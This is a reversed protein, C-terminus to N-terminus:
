RTDPARFPAGQADVDTTCDPRPAIAVFSTIGTATSRYQLSCQLTSPRDRFHKRMEYWTADASPKILYFFWQVSTNGDQEGVLFERGDETMGLVRLSETRARVLRHRGTRLDVVYQFTSDTGSGSVRPRCLRVVEDPVGDKITDGGSPAVPCGEWPELWGGRLLVRGVIYLSDGLPSYAGTWEMQRSKYVYNVYEMCDDTDTRRIWCETAYNAGVSVPAPIPDLERTGGAHVVTLTAGAAYGNADPVTRLQVVTDGGHSYLSVYGFNQGPTRHTSNFGGGSGEVPWLASDRRVPASRQWTGAPSQYTLESLYQGGERTLLRVRKGGHMADFRRIYHSTSPLRYLTEPGNRRQAILAHGDSWLRNGCLRTGPRQAAARLAEYVNLVPISDTASGNRMRGRGNRAGELILAKLTDPKQALRPDFALLLAATGAVLPAAYSTGWGGRIGNRDLGFTDDGPAAIQVLSGHNTWTPTGLDGGSFSHKGAAVILVNNPRLAAAQAFGTWRADIGDNGAAIVVLPNFGAGVAGDVASVMLDSLQQVITDRTAVRSPITEASPDYVSDSAEIWGFSKATVVWNVGMSLNIVSATDLAARLVTEAMWLTGTTAPSTSTKRYIAGTSPNTRAVEYLRMRARWNLGTMGASDNGVAGLLSATFTGHDISDAPANLQNVLSNMAVSNPALDPVLHFDSDVIAVRATTSGTECGWAHPAAVKELAWNRRDSRAPDTQWSDWGAGDRPLRYYTTGPLNGYPYAFQVQPLHRLLTLSSRLRTMSTDRPIRVYYLGLGRAGGELTGIADIASQREERSSTAVFRVMVADPVCEPLGSVDCFRYSGPDLYRAPTHDPATEAVRNEHASTTFVRVTFAFRAVTRPVHFEWQKPRTIEQPQLITDYFHYPQQAATFNQYGDPNRVRVTGTDGPTYYATATPGTEFFVKLGTVVQGDPTGIAYSLLNQATAEMSFTQAATDSVVNASRMKIQNQGLLALPPGEAGGAPPAPDACTVSGGARLDVACTVTALISPPREPSSAALTPSADTCGLCSLALALAIHM